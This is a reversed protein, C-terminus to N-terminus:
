YDIKRKADNKEIGKFKLSNIIMVNCTDDIDHLCGNLCLVYPSEVRRTIGLHCDSCKGDFLKKM